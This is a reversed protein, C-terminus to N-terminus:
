VESTPMLSVVNMNKCPFRPSCPEFTYVTSRKEDPYIGIKWAHGSAPQGIRKKITFWDFLSKFVRKSKKVSATQNKGLCREHVVSRWSAMVHLVVFVVAASVRLSWATCKNSQIKKTLDSQCICRSRWDGFITLSELCFYLANAWFTRPNQFPFSPPKAHLKISHAWCIWTKHPSDLSIWPTMPIIGSRLFKRGM